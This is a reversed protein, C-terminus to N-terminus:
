MFVGAGPGLPINFFYFCALMALFAFFFFITYPLSYAVVTGIGVEKKDPAVNFREFLAIAVVLMTSLPAIPNTCSDGCRYAATVMAPSFGVATFMPIYIPALMLWKANASGIFLNFFATLCVIIILTPYGTLNAQNILEAGKFGVITPLNSLNFLKIFISATLAIVILMINQKLATGMMSPIDKSNTITGVTRGYAVGPLLFAMFLTFIIGSLFPSRPLLAGNDSRLIADAPLTLLLIVALWFLLALGAYRLGKVQLPSITEGCEKRPIDIPLGDAAIHPVTCYKTVLVTVATLVVVAASLFYWNMLLHAPANLGLEQTVAMTIGNVVLDQSAILFNAGFGANGAAYAISVGIWPNKGMAQYVAGGVAAAAIIGADSALNANIVVFTLIAVVAWQPAKLITRKIFTEMLGSQECVGIAMLLPIVARLPSFDFFINQFNLFFFRINEKNLLSKAKITITEPSAGETVKTYSASVGLWECIVSILIVFAILWVFMMFPHPLRNGIREVGGIFKMFGREEASKKQM